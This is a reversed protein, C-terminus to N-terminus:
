ILKKFHLFNSINKSSSQVNENMDDDKWDESVEEGRQKKEWKEKDGLAPYYGGRSKQDEFYNIQFQLWEGHIMCKDRWNGTTFKLKYDPNGDLDELSFEKLGLIRSQQVMKPPLLENTITSPMREPDDVGNALPLIDKKIQSKSSKLSNDIIPSKEVDFNHGIKTDSQELNMSQQEKAKIQEYTLAAPIPINAKAMQSEIYKSQENYWWTRYQTKIREEYGEYQIKTQPELTDPSFMTGGLQKCRTGAVVLANEEQIPTNNEM